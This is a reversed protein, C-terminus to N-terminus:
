SSGSISRVWGSFLYDRFSTVTDVAERNLKGGVFNAPDNADLGPDFPQFDTYLLVTLLALAPVWAWAWLKLVRLPISGGVRGHYPGTKALNM